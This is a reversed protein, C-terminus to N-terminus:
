KEPSYSSRQQGQFQVIGDPAEGDRRNAAANGSEGAEDGPQM